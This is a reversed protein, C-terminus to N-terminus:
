NISAGIDAISTMATGSRVMQYLQVVGSIASFNRRMAAISRIAREAHNAM